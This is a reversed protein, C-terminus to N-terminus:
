GRNKDLLIKYIEDIKEKIETFQSKLDNVVQMSAFEKRADELIERHKKELDEPKSFQKTQNFFLIVALIVAAYPAYQEM